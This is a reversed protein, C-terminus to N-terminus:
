RSTALAVGAEATVAPTSVWATTAPPQVIFTNPDIGRGQAALRAVIVAPHEHNAHGAVWTVSAPPQVIFTNPDIAAAQRQVLVAPHEGLTHSQAMAGVAAVSLLLAFPIHQSTTM